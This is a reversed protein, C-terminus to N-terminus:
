LGSYMNNYFNNKTEIWYLRPHDGDLFCRHPHQQQQHQSLALRGAAALGRLEPTPVAFQVGVAEAEVEARGSELEGDTLVADKM